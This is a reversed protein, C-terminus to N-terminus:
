SQRRKKRVFVNLFLRTQPDSSTLNCPNVQEGDRDFGIFCGRSDKLVIYVPSALPVVDFQENKDQPTALRLREKDKEMVLYRDKFKVSELTIMTESTSM